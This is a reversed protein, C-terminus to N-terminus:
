DAAATQEDLGFQRVFRLFLEKLLRLSEERSYCKETVLHNLYYEMYQRTFEPLMLFVSRYGKSLDYDTDKEDFSVGLRDYCVLSYRYQFQHEKMLLPIFNKSEQAMNIMKKFIRMREEPTFARFGVFHDACFGTQLFRHCGAVTMIRYTDKKKSYLNQYRQEHLSITREILQNLQDESFMAKGRLASVAIDAPVQHFCLDNSLSYTARNLEHSFFTMCLSTFDEKSIEPEKLPAPPPQLTKLLKSLFGYTDSLAANSLEIAHDEDTFVFFFQQIERGTHARIALINGSVVNLQNSFSACLDYVEYRHDFLLPLVVEVLDASHSAFVNSHLFHQMFVQKQRAAFLPSLHSFLAPFCSNVCLIDVKDAKLLLDIRQQLTNQNDLYIVTSADPEKGMLIRKISQQFLYHELGTCSIDLSHKLAKYEEASFLNAKKLNEYFNQYKQHDANENLIRKLVARGGALASLQALSLGYQSILVNLCQSFTLIQNM